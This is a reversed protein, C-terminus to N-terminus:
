GREMRNAEETKANLLHGEICIPMQSTCFGCGKVHDLWLDVAEGYTVM